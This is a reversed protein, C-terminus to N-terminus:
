DETEPRFRFWLSFWPPACHTFHDWSGPEARPNDSPQEWLGLLVFGRQALGTLVTGLTHRWERPGKIQGTKQGSDPSFLDWMTDEAEAGDVYGSVLLYGQGNWSHEDMNFSFPNSFQHFYFGGPRLVRRSRM